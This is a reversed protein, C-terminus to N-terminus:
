ATQECHVIFDFRIFILVSLLSFVDNEQSLFETWTSSIQNLKSLEVRHPRELWLEITNCAISSLKLRASAKRRQVPRNKKITKTLYLSLSGVFCFFNLYVLSVTHCLIKANRTKAIKGAIWM